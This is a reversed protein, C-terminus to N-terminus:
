PSRSGHLTRWQDLESEEDPQETNGVSVIIKGDKGIEVGKVNMGAAMVGKVARTVDSQKFANPPRSM